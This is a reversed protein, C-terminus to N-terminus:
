AGTCEEAEVQQASLTRRPAGIAHLSLQPQGWEATEMAGGGRPLGQVGQVGVSASLVACLADCLGWLGESVKGLCEALTLGLTYALIIVVLPLTVSLFISYAACSSCPGLKNRRTRGREQAM